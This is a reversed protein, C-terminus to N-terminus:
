YSEFKGKVSVRTGFGYVYSQRKNWSVEERGIAIHFISQNNSLGENTAEVEPSIAYITTSVGKGDLEFKDKRDNNRSPLIDWKAVSWKMGLKKSVTRIGETSGKNIERPIDTTKCYRCVPM